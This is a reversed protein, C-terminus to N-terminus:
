LLSFIFSSNFSTSEAQLITEPNLKKWELSQSPSLYPDLGM